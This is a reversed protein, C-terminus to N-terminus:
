ETKLSNAPNERAVRFTQSIITVLGIGLLLVFCGM